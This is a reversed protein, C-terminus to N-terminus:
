SRRGFWSAFVTMSQKGLKYMDTKKFVVDGAALLRTAPELGYVFHKVLERAATTSAVVALRSRMRRVENDLVAPAPFIARFHRGM